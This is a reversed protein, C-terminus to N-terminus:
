DPAYTSSLDVSSVGPYSAALMRRVAEPGGAPMRGDPSCSAITARLGELEEPLGERKRLQAQMQEASHERVWALTKRMARALRAVTERNAGMWDAQAMMCVGPYRDVGFIERTGEVTTGNALIELDPIRARLIALSPPLTVIADLRAHEISAVTVGHGGGTIAFKVDKETLGHRHLLYTVFHQGSSGFASIGVTAGKLEEIRRIRRAVLALPSRTTLVIFSRAARGEAALHIAHDYGGTVVEASGGFLAQMAKSTSALENVELDLGEAAFHGLAQALPTMEEGRFIAVRVRPLPHSNRCGVAAALAALVV